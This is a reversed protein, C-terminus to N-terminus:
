VGKSVEVEDEGGKGGGPARGESGSRLETRQRKDKTRQPSTEKATGINTIQELENFFFFFVEVEGVGMGAQVEIDWGSSGM